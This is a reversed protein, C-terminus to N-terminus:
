KKLMTLAWGDLAVDQASGLFICVFFMVTLLRTKPQWTGDENGLWESVNMSLFFFFIGLVFIGSNPHKFFYKVAKEINANM